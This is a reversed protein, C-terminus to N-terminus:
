AGQGEAASVGEEKILIAAKDEVAEKTIEAVKNNSETVIIKIMINVAAIKITTIDKEVKEKAAM